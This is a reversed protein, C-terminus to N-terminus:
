IEARGVLHVRLETRELDVERKRDAADLVMLEVELMETALAAIGRTGHAPQDVAVEARSLGPPGIELRGADGPPSPGPCGVVPVLATEEVVDAIALVGERDPIRRREPREVDVLVRVEEVVLGVAGRVDIRA